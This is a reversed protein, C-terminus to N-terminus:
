YSKISELYDKESHGKRRKTTSKLAMLFLIVFVLVELFIFAMIKNNLLFDWVAEFFTKIKTVVVFTLTTSKASLNEGYKSSAFVKYEAVDSTPLSVEYEGKEDSEIALTPLTYANAEKVLSLSKLGSDKKSIFINVKSNPITKGFLKSSVGENVKNDSLSITPSLLIPGVELPILSDSPLAPICSPQTVKKQDDVAQICLEPYTYTFSYIESFRFLGTSDSVTQESVGFGKLTVEANIPGYGYITLANQKFKKQSTTTPKPTSTPTSSSVPSATPTATSTPTATAQVVVQGVTTDVTIEPATTNM